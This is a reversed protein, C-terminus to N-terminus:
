LELRLSSTIPGLYILLPLPYGFGRKLPEIFDPTHYNKVCEVRSNM